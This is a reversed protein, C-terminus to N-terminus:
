GYLFNEVIELHTKRTVSKSAYKSVLLQKSYSLMM